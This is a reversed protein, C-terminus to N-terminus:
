TLAPQCARVDHRPDFKDGTGVWWTGKLVTIMRDNPHWHPQSMNGALWKFM